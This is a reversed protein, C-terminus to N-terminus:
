RGKLRGFACEVVVCARSLRTNFKSGKTSLGTGPYPQLLWPLLPYAPDGLIVVPVPVGALIQVSQPTGAEGRNFVESNSLIRADHVSGPSGVNVNMFYNEHDM